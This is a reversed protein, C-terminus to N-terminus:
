QLIIFKGIQTETWYQVPFYIDQQCMDNTQTRTPVDYSNLCNGEIVINEFSSDGILSNGSTYKTSLNNGDLYVVYADKTHDITLNKYNSDIQDISVGAILTIEPKYNEPDSAYANMLFGPTM